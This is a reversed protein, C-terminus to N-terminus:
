VWNSCFGWIPYNWARSNEIEWLVVFQDFQVGFIKNIVDGLLFENILKLFCSKFWCFDWFRLPKFNGWFAHNLAQFCLIFSFFPCFLRVQRTSPFGQLFKPPFRCFDQKSGIVSRISLSLKFIKSFTYSCTLFETKLFSEIRNKVSRFNSEM